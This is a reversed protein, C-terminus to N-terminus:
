FDIRPPPNLPFIRDAYGGFECFAAVHFLRSRPSYINHRPTSYYPLAIRDHNVDATPSLDRIRLRHALRKPPVPTKLASVAITPMLRESEVDAHAPQM